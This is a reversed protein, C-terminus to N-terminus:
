ERIWASVRFESGSVSSDLYVENIYFQDTARARSPLEVVVPDGPLVEMGNSSTVTEDGIYGKGTNTTISQITVEYVLLSETSIPKREGATTIIVAPFTKLKLGSAM